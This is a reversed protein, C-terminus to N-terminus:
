VGGRGTQKTSKAKERKVCGSQSSINLTTKYSVSCVRQFRQSNASLLMYRALMLTLLTKRKSGDGLLSFAVRGSGGRGPHM